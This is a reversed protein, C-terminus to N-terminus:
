VPTNGMVREFYAIRDKRPLTNLDVATREGKGRAVPARGGLKGAQRRAAVVGNALERRQVAQQDVFHKGYTPHGRLFLLADAREVPQRLKQSLAQRTQEVLQAQQPTLTRGAGRYFGAQDAMDGYAGQLHLISEALPELYHLMYGRMGKDLEAYEQPLEQAQRATDQGRNQGQGSLFRNVLASREAEVARLRDNVEKFRDYPVARPMRGGPAAADPEQGEEQGEAVEGEEQSAEGETGEEGEQGEEGSEEGSDGGVDDGATDVDETAVDGGADGEEDGGAIPPLTLLPDDADGRETVTEM